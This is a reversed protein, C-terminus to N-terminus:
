VLVALVEVAGFVVNEHVVSVCGHALVVFARLVDAALLVSLGM